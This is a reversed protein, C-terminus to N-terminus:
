RLRVWAKGATGGTEVFGQQEADRVYKGFWGAGGRIHDFRSDAAIEAYRVPNYGDVQRLVELLPRFREHGNAPSLTPGPAHAAKEDLDPEDTALVSSGGDCTLRRRVRLRLPDVGLPTLTNGTTCLTSPSFVLADGTSLNMAESYWHDSNTGLHHSLYKCWSLSSFRHCVVFSALDLITAPIITPEQTAILIRTGLHRQQRIVNCISRNLRQSDKNTLYKHAEDFVVVKGSTGRWKVFCDLVVDFLVSATLGDIFPDSLDVIVLNGAGFCTSVCDNPSSSMFSDLLHLRLDLMSRQHPDFKIKELDRKFNTYSFHDTGSARLLQLVRHLYLPMGVANDHWGMLALMHGATLENEALLLPKVSVGPLRSYAQTTRSLHTPSALVTTKPLQTGSVHPVVSLYAAEAPRGRNQNDFNFVLAALPHSLTGIGEDVILANELICAVTHSKGSGQVGCVVSSSPTNLNVYVREDGSVGLLGRQVFEEPSRLVASFTVLPATVRELM